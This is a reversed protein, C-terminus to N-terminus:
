AVTSGRKSWSVKEERKSWSVKEERKRKLKTKRKQEERPKKERKSKGQNKERKEDKKRESEMEREKVLKSEKREMKGQSVRESREERTRSLLWLTSLKATSLFSTSSNWNYSNSHGKKENKGGLLEAGTEHRPVVDGREQM